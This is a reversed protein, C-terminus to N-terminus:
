RGKLAKQGIDKRFHCGCFDIKDVARYATELAESLEAGKACVGLM